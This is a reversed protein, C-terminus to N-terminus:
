ETEYLGAKEGQYRIWGLFAPVLILAPLLGRLLMGGANKSTALAMVGRHPRACLLAISLLLMTSASHLATQTHSVRPFLVYDLLVLISLLAVALACAEFLRIAIRSGANLLLLASGVFLLNAATIPGPSLGRLEDGVEWGSLLVALLFAGILATVLALIQAGRRAWPPGDEKRLWWLAAGSLLLGGATPIRMNPLGPLVSKLVQIEFTWGILVTLGVLAVTVSAAASFQPLRSVVRSPVTSNM